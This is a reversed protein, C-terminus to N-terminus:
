AECDDDESDLETPAPADSTDSQSSSIPVVQPLGPVLEPPDDAQSAPGVTDGVTDGITDGITDGVTDGDDDDKDNPPDVAVVFDQTALLPARTEAPQRQVLRPPQPQPRRARWPSDVRPSYGGGLAAAVSRCSVGSDRAVEALLSFRAESLRRGAAISQTIWEPRVFYLSVAGRSTSNLLAQREKSGSLRTCVVHTVARKTLRSAMEAGHLRALKGLSYSSLGGGVGDVRGNFYLRCNRFVESSAVMALPACTSASGGSGSGHSSSSAASHRGAFRDCVASYLNADVSQESLKREREEWYGPWTHKEGHDSVNVGHQRSMGADRRPHKAPPPAGAEADAKPRLWGELTAAM